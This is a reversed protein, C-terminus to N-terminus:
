TSILISYTSNIPLLKIANAEFRSFKISKAIHCGRGTCPGIEPKLDCFEPKVLEIEGSTGNNDKKLVAMDEEEESHTEM